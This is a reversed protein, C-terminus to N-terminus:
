EIFCFVWSKWNNMIYCFFLMLYKGYKSNNIDMVKTENGMTVVTTYRSKSSGHKVPNDLQGDVSVNVFLFLALVCAGPYVYQAHAM